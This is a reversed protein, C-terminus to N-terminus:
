DQDANFLPPDSQEIKMNESSSDSENMILHWAKAQHSYSKM